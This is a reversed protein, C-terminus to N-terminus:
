APPLGGEEAAGQDEQVRRGHPHHAQSPCAEKMVGLSVSVVAAAAM